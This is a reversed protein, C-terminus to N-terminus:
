TRNRKTGATYNAPTCCLSNLFVFVLNSGRKLSSKSGLPLYAKCSLVLFVSWLCLVGTFSSPEAGPPSRCPLTGSCCWASEAAEAGATGLGGMWLVAGAWLRPKRWDQCLQAVLFTKAAVLLGCLRSFLEIKNWLYSPQQAFSSTCTISILCSKSDSVLFLSLKKNEKGRHKKLPRYALESLGCM